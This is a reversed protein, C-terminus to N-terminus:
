NKERSGCEPFTLQIQDTSPMIECRWRIVRIGAATLAKDKKADAQHRDEDLYHSKDDLEIAAVTNLEKDVVVFDVSM